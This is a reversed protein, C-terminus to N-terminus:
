FAPASQADGKFYKSAVMWRGITWRDPSGVPVRLHIWAAHEIHAAGLRSTRALSLPMAYGTSILCRLNSVPHFMYSISIMRFVMSSSFGINKSYPLIWQQSKGSSLCRFLLSPAILENTPPKFDTKHLRKVVVQSSPASNSAHESPNM